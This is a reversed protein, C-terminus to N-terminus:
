MPRAAPPYAVIVRVQRAPIPRRAATQAHSAGAAFLALLAAIIRITITM